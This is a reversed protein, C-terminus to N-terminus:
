KLTEIKVIFKNVKIMIINYIKSVFVKLPLVNILYNFYFINIIFIIFFDHVNYM